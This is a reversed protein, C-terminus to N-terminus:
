KVLRELLIAIADAALIALFGAENRLKARNLIGAAGALVVLIAALLENGHWHNMVWLWYTFISVSMLLIIIRPVIKMERVTLGYIIAMAVFGMYTYIGFYQLAGPLFLTLLIGLIMGLSVISPFTKRTKVVRFIAFASALLLLIELLIKM